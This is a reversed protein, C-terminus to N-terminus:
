PATAAVIEHVPHVRHLSDACGYQPHKHCHYCLKQQVQDIQQPAPDVLLEERIGVHRCLVGLHLIDDASGAGVVRHVFRSM